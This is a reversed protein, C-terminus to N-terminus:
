STYHIYADHFEWSFFFELYVFLCPLPQKFNNILEKPNQGVFKKCGSNSKISTSNQSRLLIANQLNQHIVQLPKLAALLSSWIWQISCSIMRTGSNYLLEKVTYFRREGGVRFGKWLVRYKGIFIYPSMLPQHGQVQSCKLCNIFYCVFRLLFRSTDSGLIKKRSCINKQSRPTSFKLYCMQVGVCIHILSGMNIISINHCPHGFKESTVLNSVTNRQTFESHRSSPSDASMSTSDSGAGHHLSHRTRAKSGNGGQPSHVEALRSPKGATWIWLYIM